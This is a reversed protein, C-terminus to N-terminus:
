QGVAAIAAKIEDLSMKETVEVGLLKASEAVEAREVAAQEKARAALKAKTYPKGTDPDIEPGGGAPNTVFTKGGNDAVVKNVLWEPITDGEVEFITGKAIINGQSDNVGKEIVRVKM